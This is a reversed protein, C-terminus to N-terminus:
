AHTTVIEVVIIVVTPKQQRHPMMKDGSLSDEAVIIDVTPEQPMNPMMKDGFRCEEM